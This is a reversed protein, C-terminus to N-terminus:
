KYILINIRNSIYEITYDECYDLNVQKYELIRKYNLLSIISTASIQTNLMLTINGYLVAGLQAIRCNIKDILTAINSCESCDLLKPQLM